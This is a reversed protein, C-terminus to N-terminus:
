MWSIVIAVNESCPMRCSTAEFGKNQYYHIASSMTPVGYKEGLMSQKITYFDLWLESEGKEAAKHIQKNIYKKLPSNSFEKILFADNSARAAATKRRIEAINM